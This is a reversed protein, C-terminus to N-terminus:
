SRVSSCQPGMERNSRAAPIGPENDEMTPCLTKLRRVLYAVFDPFRNVPELMQVLAAPGREDLRGTWSAVTAPTLLIHEATQELSWGRTARLELIALREIPQYYPRRHGPLRKMRNDKLRMEEQILGM